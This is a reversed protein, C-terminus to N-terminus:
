KLIVYLECVAGSYLQIRNSPSTFKLDKLEITEM